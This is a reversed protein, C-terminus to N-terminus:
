RDNPLSSVSGNSTETGLPLAIGYFFSTFSRLVYNEGTGQEKRGALGM